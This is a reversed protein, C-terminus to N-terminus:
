RELGGRASGLGERQSHVSLSQSHCLLLNVMKGEYWGVVSMREREGWRGVKGGYGKQRQPLRKGASGYGGGVNVDDVGVYFM